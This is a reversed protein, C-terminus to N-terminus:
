PSEERVTTPVVAAAALYAMPLGKDEGDEDSPNPNRNKPNPNSRTL